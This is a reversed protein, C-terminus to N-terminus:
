FIRHLIRTYRAPIMPNRHGLENGFPCGFENHEGFVQTVQEITIVPDIERLNKTQYNPRLKNRSGGRDTITIGM